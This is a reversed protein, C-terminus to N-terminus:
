PHAPLPPQTAIYAAFADARGNALFAIARQAGDSNRRIVGWSGAYSSKLKFASFGWTAGAYTDLLSVAQAAPAALFVALLAVAWRFLTLKIV